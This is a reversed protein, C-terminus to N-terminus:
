SCPAEEACEVRLAIWVGSEGVAISFTNVHGGRPEFVDITAVVARTEPDIRSVTGSDASTVWLSGEAVALSTLREGLEIRRTVEGTSPDIESVTGDGSSAAWVGERGIAVDPDYGDFDLTAVVENTAADIRWVRGEHSEVWVSGDGATIGGPGGLIPDPLEITAIVEGAVPDVRLVSELRNSVVWLSGDWIAVSLFGSDRPGFGLASVVSGPFYPDPRIEFVARDGTTVWLTGPEEGLVVSSPWGELEVTEVVTSTEPDIRLVAGDGDSTLRTVWVGDDGVAIPEISDHPVEGTDITAVVENTAPDIRFVSSYAQQGEAASEAQRPGDRTVWVGDESVALAFPRGGVDIMAVVANTEADLRAVVGGGYAVWVSGQGVAIDAVGPFFAPGPPADVDVRAVIENARPDLRWVSYAGPSAVWVSGEGAAIELHGLTTAEITNTVRNTAPDIRLVDGDAHNAVWVAGEGAALTYPNDPLEITAVVDGTEPDIRLVTKDDYNAAWVFDNEVAVDVFEGAGTAAEAYGRLPLSFAADRGVADFANETLRRIQAIGDTGKAVWISESGAAAAVGGPFGGVGVTEVVANTGPDIKSVTGDENNAVWVADESVAVHEPSRGVPITAVVENTALDLRVLSGVLPDGSLSSSPLVQGGSSESDAAPAKLAAAEPTNDGRSLLVAPIAAAAAILLAALAALVWARRALPSAAPPLGVVSHEESETKVEARAAAILERCTPHRDGPSKALAKVMVGDLGAPLDSRLSTVTPPAEQLHSWLLAMKSDKRYPVHGTLCEYLVCGLSYVDTRGDVPENEIQEPAVYDLTGLLDGGETLSGDDSAHKSLGFDCLYAHEPPDAGPEPAILINGPKVDRHVLGRAFHATGLASSVQGLISLARDPELPGERELLSGLDTGEVYRMAIYLLGDTERAEYIPIINSHDISAAVRSERLFRERFRENEALEPALVKLAVKRELALDEARYVVSMGGRGLLAEIRYGALETGIRPDLTSSV